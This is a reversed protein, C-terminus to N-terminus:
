ALRKYINLLLNYVAKESRYIDHEKRPRSIYSDLESTTWKMKKLFYEIDHNLQKENVYPIELLTSKAEARTMEGALVDASLHVKRKDIGFKEPLIYGQYLRTFVSEYHKYPYPKYDFKDILENLAEQKSFEIYDLFDIWQIGLVYTSYVWKSVGITPMSKIQTKSNQSVISKINRADYKFWNWNSPM